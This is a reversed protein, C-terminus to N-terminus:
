KEFDELRKKLLSLFLGVDTVIGATELSGRDALKTIVAPNIDVCVIKVDGPTMNGTAISHLMSSLMLIMDAGKILSSYKEQAKILDMETDPLPGDDRISGALSFEVKNKILEFFLGSCLVKNKVAEKISGEARIRNIAAIHNRHGKEVGQGTKSDIGLSTGFLAHEIDHVAVATGGLLATIYGNRAMWALHGGSGTHIVVPGPVVVIRGGRERIRQMEWAVRDITLEIQRESSIGSGMFEFSENKPSNGTGKVIRVGNGGTVVSDHPNLDRILTCKVSKGSVVLVGDMRQNEVNLWIGKKRVQTTYITTSYFDDPAVGKKTVKTFVADSSESAPLGAGLPSLKQLLTNLKKLDPATVDIKVRSPENRNQGINLEKVQFAGGGAIVSDGISTLVNADLLQGEALVERATVSTVGNKEIPPAPNLQLALCKASGGAKLFESLETAIVQIGQQLLRKQLEGSCRHLIIKEGVCIGNAAFQVADDASILVRKGAPFIKELRKNSDRDFANPYYLIRKQPLPLLCTDLHYFRSDILRLPIIEYPIQKALYQHTEL